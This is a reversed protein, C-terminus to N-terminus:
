QAAEQSVTESFSQLENLITETKEPNCENRIIWEIRGIFDTRAQERVEDLFADTAPTEPIADPIVESYIRDMAERWGYECANYGDTQLGNDEVGCGMGISQYDPENSRDIVASLADKMRANEAALQVLRANSAEMGKKYCDADIKSQKLQAELNQMTIDASRFERQSEAIKSELENFKRVLYEANTENVKMDGPLCKGALFGEMEFLRM